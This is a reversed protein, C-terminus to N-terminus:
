QGEPYSVFYARLPWRDLPGNMAGILISYDGPPVIQTRSEPVGEEPCGLSWLRTGDSRRLSAGYVGQYSVECQEQDSVLRITVPGQHSVRFEIRVFQRDFSDLDARYVFRGNHSVMVPEMMFETSARAPSVTTTVSDFGDATAILQVTAKPVGAITFTGDAGTTVRQGARDGSLITVTGAMGASKPAWRERVTGTITFTNSPGIRISASAKVDDLSAEIECDAEIIGRLTGAADILCALSRTAWRVQATVDATHGDSYAGNAALQATEDVALAAPIGSISLTQLSVPAPSTPAPLPTVGSECAAALIALLCGGAVRRSNKM